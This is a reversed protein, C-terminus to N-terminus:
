IVFSMIINGAADIRCESDQDMVFTSEREEILAPGAIRDGIALTQRNYVRYDVFSGSLGSFARRSKPGEGTRSGPARADLSVPAPTSAIVKLQTIELELGPNLTGFNAEYRDAFAQALMDGDPRRGEPIVVSLEYKQGLYRIGVRREITIASGDGVQRAAILALAQLEAEIQEEAGARKLASLTMRWARSADFTAPAVFFGLASFAGASAPIVLQRVKLKRAVGSAHVPGAGGFAVMTFSSPDFGKESAFTRFANAMNENVTDHIGWAATEADVGLPQGIKRCIAEEARERSLRMDGGLFSAEDIYGLLLDADTVTPAVGGLAYCAPGPQSKASEPGVQLLGFSNIQAISGGGAGIEIMDVSPVSLTLGSGKAFRRQRAVEYEMTELINGGRILSSKATTGGMDFTMIENGSVEGDLCARAALIGAAPGSEIIRIPLQQARAAPILGGNSQMMRIGRRCGFQVLHQQLHDLYSSVIPKVYANAATTLTRRFEGAEPLVECSLTVAIQPHRKGIHAAIQREHQDNAYSHLLCVAVSTVGEAVLRDMAADLDALNLPQHVSGDALIREGIELRLAREILPEPYPAYLDHADYRFEDGIELVDRFGGTTILGTRAGNREILANIVLTTGHLFESLHAGLDPFQRHYARLGTVIGDTPDPYTTLCKMLHRQRSAHDLLVFDTFTGGVDCSVSYTM